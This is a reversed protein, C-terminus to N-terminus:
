RVFSSHTRKIKDLAEKPLIKVLCDHEKASLVIGEIFQDNNTVLPEPFLADKQITPIFMFRFGKRINDKEGIGLIVNRGTNEKVSALRIPLQQVMKSVFNEMRPNVTNEDFGEFHMDIGIPLIEGSSSTDILQGVIDWNDKGGWNHITAVLLWEAALLGEKKASFRYTAVPSSKIDQELLIKKVILPKRALVNFRKTSNNVVKTTLLRPLELNLIKQHKSSFIVGLSKSFAKVRIKKFEDEKPFLIMTALSIRLDERKDFRVKREIRLDKKFINGEQDHVIVLLHNLGKELQFTETHRSEIMNFERLNIPKRQEKNFGILVSDILRSAEIKFDFIYTPTTVSFEEETKPSIEIDLKSIQNQKVRRFPNIALQIDSSHPYQSHPEFSLAPPLSAHKNALNEKYHNISAKRLVTSDTKVITKNCAGDTAQITLSKKPHLYLHQEYYNQNEAIPVKQSGIQLETLLENDIIRLFIESEDGNKSPSFSVVPGKLDVFIRKEWITSNGSLSKAEVSVSQGGAKLDIQKNIKHNTEAREILEFEGNINVENIPFSSSINGSLLVSSQNTFPGNPNMMLDINLTDELSEDAKSLRLYHIKNLYDKARSSPLMKDSLEIEKEADEIKGLYFLCIGFERHPFYDDLFHLGYSKTRRKENFEPYVAGTEYGIAVEFDKAAKEWEEVLSYAIGRLYYNWYYNPIDTPIGHKDTPQQCSSLLGMSTMLVLRVLRREFLKM